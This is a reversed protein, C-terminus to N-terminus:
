IPEPNCLDGRNHAQARCNRCAFRPDAARRRVEETKGKEMLNCLHDRHDLPGRCTNYTPSKQEAKGM